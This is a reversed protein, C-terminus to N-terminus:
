FFCVKDELEIYCDLVFSKACWHESSVPYHVYIVRGVVCPRRGCNGGFFAFADM